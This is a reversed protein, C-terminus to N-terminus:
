KVRVLDKKMDQPVDKIDIVKLTPETVSVTSKTLTEYINGTQKEIRWMAGSAPDVILLGLLGGFVINGFYWGNLKFTVPIIKEDYGLSSLKVQYEARSFFGAGSKLKVVSPSTGKYIEKGKKDTISVTAGIPKTDISVPYSSKSVITACSSILMPAALLFATLKLFNQRM